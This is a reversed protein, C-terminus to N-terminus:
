SENIGRKTHKARKPPKRIRSSERASESVTFEDAPMEWEDTDISIEKESCSVEVEQKWGFDSENFIVDRRILIRRKEEDLLRYGKANNTYGMFRLKVAKKDLKRRETDPVHAYAVCGFVKMHSMDPKKGNWRQYPTAKKLVSTPLRNQIYAATAVAEAWYMKPLKAHSLMSRAAEILTRNKREAVGNQQPTHPVTM